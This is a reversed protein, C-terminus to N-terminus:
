LKKMDYFLLVLGLFAFGAIIKNQVANELGVDFFVLQPNVVAVIFVVSFVLMLVGLLLFVKRRYYNLMTGEVM